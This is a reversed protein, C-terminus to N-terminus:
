QIGYHTVIRGVCQTALGEGHSEGTASRPSTPEVAVLVLHTPCDHLDAPCLNVVDGGMQRCRVM